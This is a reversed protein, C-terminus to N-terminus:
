AAAAFFQARNQWTRDGEAVLRLWAEHVLATAQLTQGASELAMRAMALKRLEEYVLPLLAAAAHSDGQGGRGLVETFDNVSPSCALGNLKPSAKLIARMAETRGGLRHTADQEFLLSTGSRSAYSPRSHSALRIADPM